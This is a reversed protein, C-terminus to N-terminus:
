GRSCRVSYASTKYYYTVYCASFRVYWATVASNETSSWYYGTSGEGGFCTSPCSASSCLNSLDAKIPLIWDTFGGYDLNDCYNCAPRNDIGICSNSEEDTGYGGWTYTAGATETWCNDFVCDVYVLDGSCNYTKYAQQSADCSCDFDCTESCQETEILNGSSNFTFLSYNEYCMQLKCSYNAESGTVSFNFSPTTNNTVTNNGPSSPNLVISNITAAFVFVALAVFIVCGFIFLKKRM